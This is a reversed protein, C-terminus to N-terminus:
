YTNDSNKKLSRSAASEEEMYIITQQLDHFFYELPNIGYFTCNFETSKEKYEQVLQKRKTELESVEKKLAEIEQDLKTNTGKLEGMEAKLEDKGKRQPKNKALFEQVEDETILELYNPPLMGVDNGLQGKWWGPGKALIVILDGKRLQLEDKVKPDYDKIVRGFTSEAINSSINEEKTEEQIQIEEEEVIEETDNASNKQLIKLAEVHEKLSGRIVTVTRTKADKRLQRV